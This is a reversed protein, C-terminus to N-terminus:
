NGVLCSRCNLILLVCHLACTRYHRNEKTYASTLYVGTIGMILSRIWTNGSGPFSVFAGPHPQSGPKLLHVQFHSCKQDGNWLDWWDYIKFM